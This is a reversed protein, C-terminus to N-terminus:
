QPTRVVGSDQHSALVEARVDSRNKTSRFDDSAPLTDAGILFGNQKVQRAESQVEARSKTSAAAPATNLTNYDPDAYAQGAVAAAVVFLASAINRNM